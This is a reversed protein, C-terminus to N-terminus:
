LSNQAWASILKVCHDILAIGAGADFTSSRTNSNLNFSVVQNATYGLMGKLSSESVQKVVKEIDNYKAAKEM